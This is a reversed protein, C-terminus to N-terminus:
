SNHGLKMKKPIGAHVGSIKHVCSFIQTKERMKEENKKSDYTRNAIKSINLFTQYMNGMTKM